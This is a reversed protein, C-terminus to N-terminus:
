MWDPHHGEPVMSQGPFGSLGLGDGDTLNHGHHGGSWRAEWAAPLIQPDDRAEAVWDASEDARPLILPSGPNSAEALLGELAAGDMWGGDTAPGYMRNLELVRGDGFRVLEVGTLTDRGDPGKLIFHDAMVLLTYDAANGSVVVVDDGGGGDIIDNGLGGTITDDSDGGRLHEDAALGVITLGGPAYHTGSYDSFNDHTLMRAEVGSLTVLTTFGTGVEDRVQLYSHGGTQLIRMWGMAFLDQGSFGGFRYQVFDYVDLRDGGAGATFDTIRVSMPGDKGAFSAGYTMVVFDSGTGTTIEYNGGGVTIRLTDDGAGASYIATQAFQVDIFDNGAGGIATVTDIWRNPASFELRDDGDGGDMVIVYGGRPTPGTPPAGPLPPPFPGLGDPRVTLTDNGDGGMLVDNGGSDRLNDAGAGGELWDDGDGGELTDDGDGGELRDNGALGFLLDPGGLGRIVDDGYTGNLQDYADTGIITRGTVTGDTPSYGDFNAATFATAQTNRLTMLLVFADGGGDRDLELRTDAGDQVLRFHGTSFYNQGPTFNTVTRGVLTLLDIRDGADGTAFDQVVITAGGTGFKDTGDWNNARFDILDRGQGLRIDYSGAGEFVSIRDDGDGGDMLANAVGVVELSDNGAGGYLYFTDIGRNEAYVRLEDNGNEGYLTVVDAAHSGWRYALIHDDGDGGWAIDNGSLSARIDDNGAGGYLLDAGWLGNLFDNGGLGRIDDDFEGGNLVDDGETGLLIIPIQQVGPVVTRQGGDDFSLQVADAGGGNLREGGLSSSSRDPGRGHPNSDNGALDDFVDDGFNGLIDM